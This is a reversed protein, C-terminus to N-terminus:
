CHPVVPSVGLLGRGIGWQMTSSVKGKAGSCPAAFRARHGVAPHQFGQTTGWQLTSCVESWAGRCPAALRSRHGVAPHHFCRATGWQLTLLYTLRLNIYRM